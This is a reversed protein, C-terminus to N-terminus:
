ALLNFLFPILIPSVVATIVASLILGLSGYASHEYSIKSITATGLAHSAAGIALGHAKASKVNIFNLWSPGLLAGTLGAIIIAFATISNNGNLAETLSIGIPTTVSKLSLSVAIEPMAILVMTLILSIPIVIFIALTLLLAIAKWQHKITHLHQYLPYGLAVVAPELLNNLIKTSEFYQIFPMDVAIVFAAIALISLLMPNFWVAQLKNQIYAFVQYTGVTLLVLIFSLAIPHYQTIPMM